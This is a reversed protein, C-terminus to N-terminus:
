TRRNPNTGRNTTTNRNTIAPKRPRALDTRGTPRPPCQRNLGNANGSMWAPPPDPPQYSGPRLDWEVGLNTLRGALRDRHVITHHRGCLLAANALDTAGGDIWHILHHGDCWAAPADCGPFTCHRDRLWLARTQDTTFLRKERGQNLIAGDVGLVVPVIAADCALKRITDCGLLVGEALTGLVPAAGYQAALAEFDLTLM